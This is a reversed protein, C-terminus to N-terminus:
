DEDLGTVTALWGVSTYKAGSLANAGAETSIVAVYRYTSNDIVESLGTINITHDIEYAGTSASTDSTPGSITSHVGARTVRNVQLSPKTAPMGGHGAAGTIHVSVATLTSGHPPKFPWHLTTATNVTTVAQVGTIGCDAPTLAVPPLHSARGVERSDIQLGTTRKDVANAHDTDLDNIQTPTITDGEVWGGPNVRTFSM